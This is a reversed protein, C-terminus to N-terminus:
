LREIKDIGGLGYFFVYVFCLDQGVIQVIMYIWYGFNFCIDLM